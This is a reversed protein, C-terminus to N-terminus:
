ALCGSKTTCAKASAHKRLRVSVCVCVKASGRKWIRVIEYLTSMEAGGSTTPASFPPQPSFFWRTGSEKNNKGDTLFKADISIHYSWTQFCLNKSIGLRPTTPQGWCVPGPACWFSGFNKPEACFDISHQIILTEALKWFAVWFHLIKESLDGVVIMM